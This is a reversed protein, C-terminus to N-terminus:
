RGEAQSDAVPQLLAVARVHRDSDEADRRVDRRLTVVRGTLPRPLLGPLGEALCEFGGRGVLQCCDEDVLPGEGLVDPHDIADGHEATEVAGVVPLARSGDRRQLAATSDQKGVAHGGREVSTTNAQPIRAADLGGPDRGDADLAGRGVEHAAVDVRRECERGVLGRSHEDGAPPQADFAPVEHSAVSALRGRGDGGFTLRPHADLAPLEGPAGLRCAGGAPRVRADRRVVVRHELDAARREGSSGRRPAADPQQQLSAQGLARRQRELAAPHQASEAEREDADVDYSGHRCEEVLVGDIAAGTRPVPGVSAHADRAPSRPGELDGSV